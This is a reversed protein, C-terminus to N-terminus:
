SIPAIWTHDSYSGTEDKGEHVLSDVIGRLPSERSTRNWQSSERHESRKLLTICLAMLAVESAASGNPRTRNKRNGFFGRVKFFVIAEMLGVYLVPNVKFLYGAFLFLILYTMVSM